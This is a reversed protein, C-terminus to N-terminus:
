EYKQETVLKGNEDWIHWTGQKEGDRYYMEYRKVGKEDWIYWFGDKKGERFRAEATKVGNESWTTWLGDKKGAHYSRQEKKTGSPYYLVSEGEFLGNLINSESVLIKDAGFEKFVGSFLEKNGRYYKGDKLHIEQGSVYVSILLAICVASYTKVIM